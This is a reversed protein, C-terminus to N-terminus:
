REGCMKLYFVDAVCFKRFELISRRDEKTYASVSVFRERWYARWEARDGSEPSFCYALILADAYKTNLDMAFAVAEKKRKFTKLLKGNKLYRWYTIFGIGKTRYTQQQLGSPIGDVAHRNNMNIHNNVHRLNCPRNDTRVGNIHDVVNFLDPRPNYVCADAILQHLYIQRNRCQFYGIPLKTFKVRKGYHDGRADAVWDDKLDILLKYTPSYMLRSVCTM